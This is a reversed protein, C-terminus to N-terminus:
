DAQSLQLADVQAEAHGDAIRTELVQGLHNRQALEVQARAVVYGVGTHRVQGVSSRPDRREVDGETILDVILREHVHGLAQHVEFLQRQARAVHGVLPEHPEGVRQEVQLREVYSLTAPDGISGYLGHGIM